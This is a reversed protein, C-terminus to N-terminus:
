VSNKKDIAELGLFQREKNIMDLVGIEPHKIVYNLEEAIRSGDIRYAYPWATANQDFRIRCSPYYKRVIESFEGATLTFGGSNYVKQKPKEMLCLRAIQEAIDEVYVFNIRQGPNVPIYAAKGRVVKHVLDSTWSTLGGGERDQGYVASIRLIPVEVRFRREFTSCMFENFCKAAGYLFAPKLFGEDELVNKEGYYEQPGYVAISSCFVVREINCIRAAELVNCTGLINVGVAQYPNKEAEATLVYALHIIREVNFSYVANVVSHFKKVDGHVYTIKSRKEQSSLSKPKHDLVVVSEESKLLRAIVRSGIFGEGGIVLVSMVNQRDIGFDEPKVNENGLKGASPRGKKM